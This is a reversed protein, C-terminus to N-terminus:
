AIMHTRRRNAQEITSRLSQGPLATSRWHKPKRTFTLKFDIEFCNLRQSLCNREILSKAVVHYPLGCNAFSVAPGKELITIRANANVRRARAAATAGGAVGGIILINLPEFLNNM